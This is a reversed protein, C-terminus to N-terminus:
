AAGGNMLGFVRKATRQFDEAGWGCSHNAMRDILKRIEIENSVAAHARRDEPASFKIESGDPFKFTISEQTLVYSAAKGLAFKMAYQKSTSAFLETVEALTGTSMKKGRENAGRGIRQTWSNM